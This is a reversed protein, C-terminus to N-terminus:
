YNSMEIDSILSDLSPAPKGLLQFIITCLAYPEAVLNRFSESKSAPLPLNWTCIHWCSHNNSLMLQCETDTTVPFVELSVPKSANEMLSEMSLNNTKLFTRLTSRQESTLKLLRISPHIEVEIRDEDTPYLFAEDAPLVGDCINSCIQEMAVSLRALGDSAFCILSAILEANLQLSCPILATYMMVFFEDSEHEISSLCVKGICNNDELFMNAQQQLILMSTTNHRTPVSLLDCMMYLHDDESILSFAPEFDTGQSRLCVFSSAETSPAEYVVTGTDYLAAIIEKFACNM